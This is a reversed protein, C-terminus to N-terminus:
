LNGKALVEESEDRTKVMAIIMFLIILIKTGDTKRFTNHLFLHENELVQYEETGETLKYKQQNLEVIRPSMYFTHLPVIIFLGVVAALYAKRWAVKKQFFYTCVGLILAFVVEVNNFTTFIIMGLTGAEQRSSINRFASPVAVFDILCTMGLWMGLIVLTIKFAKNM